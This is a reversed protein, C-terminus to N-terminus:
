PAWARWLGGPLPREMRFWVRMPKESEHRIYQVRGCYTFAPPKGKYRVFLHITRGDRSHQTISRGKKSDTTTSDQSEWQFETPSIFRDEYRYREQPQDEKRLTVLLLTHPKGDLTLDLHGVEWSRNYAGGFASAIQSREYQAWIVLGSAEEVVQVFKALPQVSTGEPVTLPAYKTNVSELVWGGDRRRPSKLAAGEPGQVLVINGEVQDATAARLWECLILDGDKIPTAGGDMSDGSARVVFHRRPDVPAAARVHIPTAKPQADGDGPFDGCAVQLDEYFPLSPFPIM